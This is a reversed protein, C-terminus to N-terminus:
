AKALIMKGVRAINLVATTGDDVEVEFYITKGIISSINVEVEKGTAFPEEDGETFWLYSDDGFTKEVIGDYLYATLTTTGITNSEFVYGASSEIYCTITNQGDVGNEGSASYRYPSEGDNYIEKTRTYVCYGNPLGALPPRNPKWGSLRSLEEDTLGAIAQIYETEVQVISRGTILFPGQWTAGGDDTHAYYIDYQKNIVKHWRPTKLDDNDYFDKYLTGNKPLDLEEAAYVSKSPSSAATWQISGPLYINEATITGNDYIVLTENGQGNSVSFIKVFDPESGGVKYEPQNNIDWSNYIEDNIKGIKAGSSHWTRVGGKNYYANGLKLFLGDWTLGFLANDTVEQLSKPHWLSGDIINEGNVLFGTTMDYGYLGFRDFRVGRKTNLGNIYREDLSNSFDYATIGYEDWRFYPEDGRMIQIAGTNLQGTTILKANIGKSSIGAKWNLGGEEDDRLFIGGAVIRLQQNPSLNDTITIGTSDWVVSQEGANTLVTDAYNLAGQLFQSKEADSSNSFSAAKDWAGSSYNVSQVSATITQFLDQFQNKYNQVKINDKDPQDLNYTIETVVVEERYPYGTQQDYGFFEIDEIWTEDALNFSFDDDVGELSEVNITYTVKPLSSNYAVACADIFYKEDDVYSANKWTGEQIFRYYTKFFLLNLLKKWEGLQQNKHTLNSYENEYAELDATAQNLQVYYKSYSTAAEAIQQYYKKITLNDNVLKQRRTTEATDDDVIIDTYEFGAVQKFSAISEKSLEEASSLGVRYATVNAQAQMMPTSYTNLQSTISDIQENIRALRTYYGQLNTTGGYKYDNDFLVLDEGSAGTLSYLITSLENANLMGQNIYYTFDYIFNEKIENSGARAITCFGNQAHSNVVDPVILKSVIQKSDIKRTIDKLNVGYKFGCYNKQGIYNKVVIKKDKIRGDDHHSVVFDAWCEFTECIKQIINFYNSEKITVATIKEAHEAISEILDTRPSDLIELVMDSKNTALENTELRPNFYIYQTVMQSEQITDYPSIFPLDSNSSPFYEFIQFDELNLYNESTGMSSLFTQIKLSLFQDETLNYTASITGIIYRYGPLATGCNNADSSKFRLFVPLRQKGKDTTKYDIYGGSEVSYFKEGVEVEFDINDGQCKYLLIFKQGPYFNKIKKRNDYFSSNVVSSRFPVYGEVESAARGAFKLQLYPTCQLSSFDTITGLQEFIDPDTLALCTAGYESKKNAYDSQNFIYTGTWGSTNTFTSNTIYNQVINPAVIKTETYGRWSETGKTYCTVYKDLLANYETKTSFVYRKGRINGSIAVTSINLNTPKYLGYQQFLGQEDLAYSTGDIFYQCNKNQIIRDSNLLMEQGAPIYIFQLKKTKNKCCSYFLYIKSDAPIVSSNGITPAYGNDDVLLTANVSAQLTVEILTEELTQPITESNEEDLSWDTDALVFDILEQATGMNNELKADLVLGFGNKSLENIHCETAIYNTLRTSSKEDVDKIIFDYWKQKYKLKIKAENILDLCFPNDVEQGSITDIYKKYLSFTLQKSGNVSTKLKPELARNLSVMGDAGFVYRKHETLVGEEISDEWFSLEYERLIAM